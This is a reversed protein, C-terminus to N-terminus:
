IKVHFYHIITIIFGIGLSSLTTIQKNFEIETTIYANRLTDKYRSKEADSM